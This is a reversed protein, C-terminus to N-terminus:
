NLLSLVFEKFCMMIDAFRQDHKFRLNKERAFVEGQELVLPKFLDKDSEVRM